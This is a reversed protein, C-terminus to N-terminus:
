FSAHSPLSHEIGDKKKKLQKKEGTSVDRLREMTEGSNHRGESPRM